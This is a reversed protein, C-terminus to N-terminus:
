LRAGALPRLAKTRGPQCTKFRVVVTNAFPGIDAWLLPLVCGFVRCRRSYACKMVQSGFGVSDMMGRIKIPYKISGM